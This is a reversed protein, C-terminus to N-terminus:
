QLEALPLQRTGSRSGGVEREHDVLSDVIIRVGPADDVGGMSAFRKRVTGDVIRSDDRWVVATLADCVARALKDWDRGTWPLWRWKPLSTPRTVYFTVDIALPGDIPDGPNERRWRQAEGSIVGRWSTLEKENDAIVRAGRRGRIPIAKLSGQAVPEGYVRLECVRQGTM